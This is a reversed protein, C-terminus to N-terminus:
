REDSHRLLLGMGTRELFMFRLLHALVNAARGFRLRRGGTGRARQAAFFFDPGLDIQRVNGPRTIHQFGNRLLLFRRSCRYPGHSRRDHGPGDNRRRRWHRLRRRRWSRRRNRRRYSWNHRRGCRPGRNNRRYSFSRRSCNSRHNWGRRHDRRWRARCWRGGCHNSWGRGCRRRSWHRCCRLNRDCSGRTRWCRWRNGTRRLRRRRAHNHRLSPRARHVFSRRRPDNSRSRRLRTHWDTHTGCGPTRHRPLWNKLTRTRLNWTSSRRTRQSGALATWHM